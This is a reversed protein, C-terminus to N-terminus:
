VTFLCLYPVSLSVRVVCKSTEMFSINGYIPNDEMQRSSRRLNFLTFIHNKFNDTYCHSRGNCLVYNQRKRQITSILAVYRRRIRSQCIGKGTATYFCLVNVMVHM